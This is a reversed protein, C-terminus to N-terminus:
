STVTGSASAKDGPGQVLSCGQRGCIRARSVARAGHHGLAAEAAWGEM